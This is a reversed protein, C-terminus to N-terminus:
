MMEEVGIRDLLAHSLTRRKHEMYTHPNIQLTSYHAMPLTLLLHVSPPQEFFYLCNNCM